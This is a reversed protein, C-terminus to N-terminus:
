GAGDRRQGHAKRQRSFILMRDGISGIALLHDSGITTSFGPVPHLKEPVPHLQEPTLPIEDSLGHVDM